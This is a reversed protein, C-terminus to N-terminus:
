PACSPCHATGCHSGLGAALVVAKGANVILFHPEKWYSTPNKGFSLVLHRAFLMAFCSCLCQKRCPRPRAFSGASRFGFLLLLIRIFHTLPPLGNPQLQHHELSSDQPVHAGHHAFSCRTCTQLFPKLYNMPETLNCFILLTFCTVKASLLVHKCVPFLGSLVNQVAVLSLSAAAVACLLPLSYRSAQGAPSDASSHSALSVSSGPNANAGLGRM